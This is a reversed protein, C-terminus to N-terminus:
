DDSEWPIKANLAFGLFTNGYKLEGAVEDLRETMGKLGIGEEIEESGRGDDELSIHISKNDVRFHIDINQANGHTLANTMGEQLFRYIIHDIEKGLMWPLNGYEVKVRVGTSEHFIDAITKIAEKSTSRKIKISRLLRLSERMESHGSKIIELAQHLLKELKPPDTKVLDTSAEIMMLLNTMTYGVTDHIERTINLRENIISREEAINAYNQFGTNAVSLKYIVHKQNNIISIKDLLLNYAVSIIICLGSIVFTLIALSIKLNWSRPETPFGWLIENYHTFITTLLIIISLISLELTSCLLIGELLMVLILFFEFWINQSFPKTMIYKCALQFIFLYVVYAGKLPVLFVLFSSVFNVILIALFQSIWSRPYVDSSNYIFLSIIALNCMIILSFLVWKQVRRNFLSISKAM